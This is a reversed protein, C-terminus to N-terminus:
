RKLTPAHEVRPNQLGKINLYKPNNHIYEINKIIVNYSRIPKGFLIAKM